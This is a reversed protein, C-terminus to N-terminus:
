IVVEFKSYSISCRMNNLETSAKASAYVPTEVSGTCNALM